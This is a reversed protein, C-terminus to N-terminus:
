QVTSLKAQEINLSFYFKNPDMNCTWQSIINKKFDINAWSM